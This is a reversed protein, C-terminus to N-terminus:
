VLGQSVLALHHEKKPNYGTDYCRCRRRCVSDESLLILVLLVHLHLNRSPWQDIDPYMFDLQTCVDHDDATSRSNLAQWICQRPTQCRFPNCGLNRAGWVGEGGEVYQVLFAADCGPGQQGKCCLNARIISVPLCNSATEGGPSLEVALWGSNMDQLDLTSYSM